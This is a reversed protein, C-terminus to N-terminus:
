QRRIPSRRAILAPDPQLYNTPRLWRHHYGIHLPRARRGHNTPASLTGGEEGGQEAQRM